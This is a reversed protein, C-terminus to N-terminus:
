RELIFLVLSGIASLAAVGIAIAITWSRKDATEHHKLHNSLIKKVWCLDRYVCVLLDHDSKGEIEDM